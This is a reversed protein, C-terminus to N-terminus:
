SHEGPGMYLVSPEGFSSNGRGEHDITGRAARPVLEWVGTVDTVADLRLLWYGSYGRNASDM